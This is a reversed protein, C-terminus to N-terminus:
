NVSLNGLVAGGLWLGSCSKETRPGASERAQPSVHVCSVCRWRGPLAEREVSPQNGLGM